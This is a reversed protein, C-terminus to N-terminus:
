DEKNEKSGKRSKMQIALKAIDRVKSLLKPFVPADELRVSKRQRINLM